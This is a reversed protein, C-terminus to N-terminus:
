TKAQEKGAEKELEYAERLARMVEAHQFLLFERAAEVRENIASTVLKALLKEISAPILGDMQETLQKAREEPTNLCSVGRAMLYDAIAQISVPAYRGAPVNPFYTRRPEGEHWSLSAIGVCKGAQDAVMGVMWGHRHDPNAFIVMDGPKVTM